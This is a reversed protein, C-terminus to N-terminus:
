NSILKDVLCHSANSLPHNVIKRFWVDKDKCYENSDNLMNSISASWNNKDDLFHVPKLGEMSRFHQFKYISNIDWVNSHFANYNIYICPKGYAAFDFAMTSGINIVLDCHFSLNVLNDIDEYATLIGDWNKSDNSVLVPDVFVLTDKYINLLFDYRGSVDVPSKRLIVLPRLSIDIYSLSECIDQVYFPDYPSTFLDDGSYCIWKRHPDLNFKKAFEIREIIRNKELYFEFQPTGTIFISEESIEPYFQLLESKMHESWVFYYDAKICLKAKPINDWSFIVSSIKVGVEEAALCLPILNVVRQHTILISTIKREKLLTAFHTIDNKSWLKRSILESLLINKYFFSLFYGFIRTLLLFFSLGFKKSRSRNYLLTENKVKNSFYLLRAWSSAEWLFRSFFHQKPLELNDYNISSSDFPINEKLIESPLKSWIEVNSKEKLSKLFNSYLYNKVGVGDPVVILINRM